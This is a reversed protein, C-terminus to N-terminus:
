LMAWDEVGFLGVFFVLASVLYTRNSIGLERFPFDHLSVVVQKGGFVM